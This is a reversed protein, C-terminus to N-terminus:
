ITFGTFLSINRSLRIKIQSKYIILIILISVLDGPGSVRLVEVTFSVEGAQSGQTAASLM